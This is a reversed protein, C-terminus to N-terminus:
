HLRAQVSMPKDRTTRVSQDWGVMTAYLHQLWVVELRHCCDSLRNIFNPHPILRARKAHNVDGLKFPANVHQM